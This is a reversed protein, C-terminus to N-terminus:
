SMEKTSDSETVPTGGIALELLESARAATRAFSTLGTVILGDHSLGTWRGTMEQGHPHLALYLTGKSRVSGDEAAYWGMLIQNDWLRLQGRWLYGGDDISIGRDIARIDIDRSSQEVRVLQDVHVEEGDKFTQWVAHWDGAIALNRDDLGALQDLSLDLARALAKAIPLTPQANGAEYRRVQRKDVGIRDALDAQSLSLAARRTKLTESLEM